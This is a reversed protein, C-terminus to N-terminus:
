VAFLVLEFLFLYFATLRVLVLGVLLGVFVAFCIAFM